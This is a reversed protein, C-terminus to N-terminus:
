AVKWEEGVIRARESELWTALRGTWDADSCAYAIQRDIPAHVISKRPMRGIAQEVEPLWSRGILRQKEKGKVFKPEEWPDYDSSPDAIKGMVRRIVAEAEHPKITERIKTKLQERVVTRMSTSIHALSEALWSELASKSYPTVVDDYSTMKYGFIRYVAAKLGQPLNGLHYLEQMTDRYRAIHIGLLDLQELDYVANHFVCGDVCENLAFSLDDMATSDNCLVMVTEGPGTSVQVSYPRGEDSETDIAPWSLDELHLSTRLNLSGHILKYNVPDSTGLYVSPIYRRGVLWHGLREWDELLPTMLSTRHMGAAPHYMPVVWGEWEPCDAIGDKRPFGHELELDTNSVLSCATAGCLIIIEPMLTLIEAYLHNKSCIDVLEDSPKVDVGGRECRCQVCNTVFVESRDLGALKLYTQDLEQGSRGVFPVGDIDEWKGPGEGIIM